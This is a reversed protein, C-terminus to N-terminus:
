NCNPGTCDDKGAFANFSPTVALVGFALIVALIIARM